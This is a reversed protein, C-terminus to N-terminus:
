SAADDCARNRLNLNASRELERNLDEILQMLTGPDEEDRAAEALQRWDQDAM